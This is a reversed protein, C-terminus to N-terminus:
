VKGNNKFKDTKEMKENKDKMHKKNQKESKEENNKYSKSNGSTHNRKNEEICKGALELVRLFEEDEMPLPGITSMMDVIESPM